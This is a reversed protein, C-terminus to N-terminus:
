ICIYIYIDTKGLLQSHVNTSLEGLTKNNNENHLFQLLQYM